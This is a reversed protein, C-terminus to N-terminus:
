PGPHPQHFAQLYTLVSVFVAILAGAIGLATGIMGWLAAKTPLGALLVHISAFEANNDGRASGIQLRIDTM